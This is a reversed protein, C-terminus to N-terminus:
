KRATKLIREKGKLKRCNSLLTDQQPARLKDKKSNTSCRIQTFEHRKIQPLKQGKNRGLIKKQKMKQAGKPVRMYTPISAPGM